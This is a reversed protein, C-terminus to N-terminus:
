SNTNPQQLKKLLMIVSFVVLLGSLLLPLRTGFILPVNDIRLFEVFIRGLSYLGLYLWFILGDNSVFRKGFSSLRTKLMSIAEQRAPLRTDNDSRAIVSQAKKKYLFFLFGFVLLNWISEYLFTPHFHTILEFEAPRNAMDIPIGLSSNTPGGFLEQNFYNGWRGIAQGLILPISYLDALSWFSYKDTCAVFAQGGSQHSAIKLDGRDSRERAIIINKKHYYYLVLIGAIIAGHIALGGNWVEIIKLPNSFYFKPENLIHYLRAGVLGWIILNVYITKIKDKDLNKQKALFGSLFYGFLFGIVLLIGYWHIAFSGITFIIPDPLYNHLFNIM